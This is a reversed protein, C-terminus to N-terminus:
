PQRARRRPFQAFERAGKEPVGIILEVDANIIRAPQDFLELPVIGAGTQVIAVDPREDRKHFLDIVRQVGRQLEFGPLTLDSRFIERAVELELRADISIQDQQEEDGKKSFRLLDRAGIPAPEAKMKEGRLMGARKLGLIQAATIELRRLERGMVRFKQVREVAHAPDILDPTKPREIVAGFLFLADEREHVRSLRPESLADKKRALGVSMRAGTPRRPAAMDKGDPVCRSALHSSRPNASRKRSEPSPRYACKRCRLIFCKQKLIGIADAVLRVHETQRHEPAPARSVAREDRGIMAPQQDVASQARALKDQAEGLASDSGVLEIADEEGVFMAIVNAAEFHKAPFKMDRNIAVRERRFRDAASGQGSVPVPPQKPGTRIKRDAIDGNLSKGDRVIRDIRDAVRKVGARARKPENGIKTVRCLHHDLPQALDVREHDLRVVVFFKQLVIRMPGPRHLLPDLRAVTMKRICRRRGHDLLQEGSFELADHETMEAAIAVRRFEGGARDARHQRLAAAIFHLHMAGPLRFDADPKPDPFRDAARELRREVANKEM